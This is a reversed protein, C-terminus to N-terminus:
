NTIAADTSEWGSPTDSPTITASINTTPIGGSSAYDYLTNPNSTGGALLLSDDPFFHIANIQESGLSLTLDSNFTTKNLASVANSTGNPTYAVGVEGDRSVTIDGAGGTLSTITSGSGFTGGSYAFELVQHNGSATDVYILAQLHQDWALIPNEPDSYNGGIGSTLSAESNNPFVIGIKNAATSGNGYNLNVLAVAYGIINGNSDTMIAVSPQTGLTGASWDTGGSNTFTHTLSPSTSGPAYVALQPGVPNNLGGSSSTAMDAAVTGNAAVALGIEADTNNGLVASTITRTATTASSQTGSQFGFEEITYDTTDANYLTYNSDFGLFNVSESNPFGSGPVTGKEIFHSGLTYDDVQCSSSGCGGTGILTLDITVNVNQTVFGLGNTGVTALTAGVAHSKLPADALTIQGPGTGAITLLEANPTSEDVVITQGASFGASSAVFITLQPPGTAGTLTTLATSGDGNPTVLYFALSDTGSTLPTVILQSNNFTAPAASTGLAAFELSPVGPQTGFPTGHTDFANVTFNTVGAETVTFGSSTSGSVGAAPQTVTISGPNGDLTISGISNAAGVNITATQVAQSLLNGTGSNGDWAAITFTDNGVPLGISITCSYNGGSVATCTVSSNSLGASVNVSQTFPASLGPAATVTVSVSATSAPV